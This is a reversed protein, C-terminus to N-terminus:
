APVEAPTAEAAVDAFMRVGEFQERPLLTEQDPPDPIPAPEEGGPDDVDRFEVCHFQDGLRYPKMRGQEDYETQDLWESPTRHMLAVMVLPCGDGRDIKEQTDHTCRFCWNEMWAMGETGNSFPTEKKAAVFAEDYTRM